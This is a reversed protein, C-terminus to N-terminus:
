SGQYQLLYIGGTIMKEKELRLDCTAFSRLNFHLSSVLKKIYAQSHAYRGTTLLTYDDQVLDEVSFVFLGGPSMKGAIIQFLPSLDGLYVLVDAAVVLDFGAPQGQLIEEMDGVLLQEYIARKEALQIMQQSLDIGLLHGCLPRFFEGALGTGCGLDVCRPFFGTKGLVQDVTQRLLRPTQYRLEQVLHHDFTEAYTDFLNEVFQRPAKSTKEGTLAALMHRVADLQPQLRLAQAYATKAEEVREVEQLLSGLNSYAEAYDPKLRIANRYSAEAQEFLKQEKQLNGLNVYTEGRNPHVQLSKQFSVQAEGFRKMEKYLTGLNAFIVAADGKCQLAKLYVAEAQSFAKIEQLVMALNFYGETLNPQIALAKSYYGMAEQWRKQRQLLTALNYLAEVFDPKRTIAQVFAAEADDLRGEALLLNGLNYHIDAHAPQVALLRQWCAMAQQRNGLRLHCVAALNLLEVDQRTTLLQEAAALAEAIKGSAFLGLAKQRLSSAPPPSKISQNRSM